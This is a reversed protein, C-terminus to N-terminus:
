VCLVNTTIEGGGDHPQLGEGVTWDTGFWWEQVPGALPNCTASLTYTHTTKTSGAGSDINDCRGTAFVWNGGTVASRYYLAGCISWYRHQYNCAISERGTVTRGVATITRGTTTCVGNHAAAPTAAAVIGGLMVVAVGVCM